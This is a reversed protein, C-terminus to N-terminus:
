YQEVTDWGAAAADYVQRVLRAAAARWAEHAAARVKAAHNLLCQVKCVGLVRTAAEVPAVM